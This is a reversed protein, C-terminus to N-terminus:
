ILGWVLPLTESVCVCAWSAKCIHSDAKFLVRMLGNRYFYPPLCGNFAINQMHISIVAHFLLVMGGVASSFFVAAATNYLSIVRLYM